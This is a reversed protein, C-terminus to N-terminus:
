YCVFLILKPFQLVFLTAMHRVPRNSYCTSRKEFLDIVAQHSNLVVLSRNFVKLYVIDGLYFALLDLFIFILSNIMGYKRGWETFVIWPQKKPIQLANGFIPKRPPGPPLNRPQSSIKRVFKLLSFFAFSLTLRIIFSLFDM